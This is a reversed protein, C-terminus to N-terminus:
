NVGKNDVLDELNLDLHRFFSKEGAKAYKCYYPYSMPIHGNDERLHVYYMYYKAFEDTRDRSNDFVSLQAILGQQWKWKDLTASLRVDEIGRCAYAMKRIALTLHLRRTYHDIQEKTPLISLNTTRDQPQNLGRWSYLLSCSKHNQTSGEVFRRFLQSERSTLPISALLVCKIRFLMTTFSSTPCRIHFKSKWITLSMSSPESFSNKGVGGIGLFHAGNISRQVCRWWLEWFRCERLCGRGQM